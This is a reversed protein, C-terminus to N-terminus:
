SKKNTKQNINSQHYIIFSPNRISFTVSFDNKLLFKYKVGLYNNFRLLESLLSFCVNM